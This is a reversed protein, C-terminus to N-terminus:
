KFFFHKDSAVCCSEKLYKAFKQKIGLNDEFTYSYCVVSELPDRLTLSNFLTFHGDPFANVSKMVNLFIIQM